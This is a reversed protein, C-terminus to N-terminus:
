TFVFDRKRYREHVLELQTKKHSSFYNKEDAHCAHMCTSFHKGIKRALCRNIRGECKSHCSKWVRRWSRWEKEVHVRVKSKWLHPVSDDVWTVQAKLLLVLMSTKPVDTLNMTWQSCIYYLRKEVEWWLCDKKEGGWLCDKYYSSSYWTEVM